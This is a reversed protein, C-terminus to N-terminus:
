QHVIKYLVFVRYSVIIFLQEKRVVERPCSDAPESVVGCMREGENIPVSQATYICYNYNNYLQDFHADTMADRPILYIESSVM